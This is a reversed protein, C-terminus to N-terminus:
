KETEMNLNLLQPPKTQKLGKLISLLLQGQHWQDSVSWEMHSTRPRFGVGLLLGTCKSQVSYGLSLSTCLWIILLESVCDPPRMNSDGSQYSNLNTEQNDWVWIALRIGGVLQSKIRNHETKIIPIQKKNNSHLAQLSAGFVLASESQDVKKM